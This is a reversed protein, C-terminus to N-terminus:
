RVDKWYEGKLMYAIGTFMLLFLVVWIGLGQRELQSPDSAYDLFNVTDRVFEDYQVPTLSGVVGPEFPSAKGEHAEGHEAGEAKAAAEPTAGAEHNATRLTQVGQLSALVHPMATGPLQLNNVGTQRSAPDAYFTTLFNFIWDTGRSRAVLSLDPPQKGFWDQADSAPMSAKIYDTPKDGPRVLLQALAADSIHLDTGIRSYRVYKLSHCGSCYSMFNRAGRQLSPLNAVENDAAREWEAHHEAAIASGAGLLLALAGIVSLKNTRM